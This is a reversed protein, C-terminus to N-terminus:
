ENASIAHHKICENSFDTRYGNFIDVHEWNDTDTLPWHLNTWAQLLQIAENYDIHINFHTTLFEILQPWQTPDIVWELPVYTWPLNKLREVYESVNIYFNYSNVKIWSAMGYLQQHQDILKSDMYTFNHLQEAKKKTVYARVQWRIGLDSKPYVMLFKSWPLDVVEHTRNKDFLDLAYNKIKLLEILQSPLKLISNVDADGDKMKIGFKEYDKIRYEYKFWNDISGQIYIQNTLYQLRNSTNAPFHVQPSLLVINKLINKAAGLDGHFIFLRNVM